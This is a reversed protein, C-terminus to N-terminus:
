LPAEAPLGANGDGPGGMLGGMVQLLFGEIRTLTRAGRDLARELRRLERLRVRDLTVTM